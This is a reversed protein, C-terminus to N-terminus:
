RTERMYMVPNDGKFIGFSAKGTVNSLAGTLPDNVTFNVTGADNPASLNIDLLGGTITGGTGLSVTTTNGNNGIAITEAGVALTGNAALDTEYDINGLNVPTCNDAANTVFAGVVAAGPDIDMYYEARLQLSLPQDAPGYVDDASLRGSRVEGAMPIAITDRDKIVQPTLHDIVINSVGDADEFGLNLNIAPNTLPLVTNVARVYSLSDAGGLSDVGLTYNLPMDETVNALNATLSVNADLPPAAHTYNSPDISPLTLTGLTANTKALNSFSAAPDLKNFRGKYNQLITVGDPLVPNVTIQPAVAGVDTFGFGQGMYTFGNCNAAFTAAGPNTPTITFHDPVFRGITLPSSTIERETSTSGDSADASAYAADNNLTVTIWGVENYRVDDGQAVGATFVIDTTNVTDNFNFFPGNSEPQMWSASDAPHSVSTVASLASLEVTADITHSFSTVTGAPVQSDEATFQLKFPQGAKHIVPENFALNGTADSAMPMIGPTSDTPIEGVASGNGHGALLSYHDPRVTFPDSCAVSDDTTSSTFNWDTVRIRANQLAQNVTVNVSKDPNPTAAWIKGGSETPQDVTKFILGQPPVSSANFTPIVSHDFNYKFVVNSSNIATATTCGNGSSGDVLELGITHDLVSAFDIERTDMNGDGNSDKLAYIDVDFSENVKKTHIVGLVPDSFSPSGDTGGHQIDKHEATEVANFAGAKVPIPVGYIRADDISNSNAYGDARLPSLTASVSGVIDDNQKFYIISGVREVRLQSGSSCLKTTPSGPIVVGDVMLQYVPKRTGSCNYSGPWYIYIAYKPVNSSHSAPSLGFYKPSGGLYRFVVGGDDSIERMSEGGGWGSATLTNTPATANFLTNQDWMVSQQPFPFGYALNSDRSSIGSANEAKVNFYVAKYPSGGNLGIVTASTAASVGDNALQWTSQDYSYWIHYDIIPSGNIPPATWYLQVEGTNLGPQTKLDVIGPPAQTASVGYAQMGVISNYANNKYLDVFLPGTEGPVSTIVTDLRKFFITSGVREIRIEGLNSPGVPCLNLTQVVSGNVKIDYNYRVRGWGTYRSCGYQNTSKFVMAYKPENGASYGEPSLGFTPGSLNYTLRLSLGGDDNILKSSEAGGPGSSLTTTGSGTVSGNLYWWTVAEEPFPFGHAVNSEKMAQGIGNVANVKFYVAKFPETGVLGTVTASPSASVGDNALQWTSQDYSYYVDYDTITSDNNPPLTWYLQVEGVSLGPKTKLDVIGPPAQVDVGYLRVNNVNYMGSTKQVDVVLPGTEAAASYLVRDQHKYYVTSGVREIRFNGMNGGGSVPCFKSQGIVVGNAKFQYTYDRRGWGTYRSCGYRSSSLLVMSYKPETGAYGVPSLGFSSTTNVTYNIDFSFGGDDNIVKSSEAGGPGGALTTTNGGSVSGNLYWWVTSEEPFPFGHVINSDRSSPGVANVAKVKFYLATFPQSGNLGTVTASTLSSVGDNFRVWNTNDYSYDILYDTIPMDNSPPATWYLQVEGVSLGPKTKLDVIGPPAQVDVGYLRVNNVNYMGSTKQVDVVLPGTEAAASYLVRDQHKYYVTSGVREIRFNGMNGGGSVPCFKSQGIVVGNAKFQYTYDRRGWGTYRSCGYRSSSLLVMSYKPETGAYGVPSLGFSSTTNVTYNIDFSFGGDDNIVKSSEAGGPGGALTTTNGGSVSGNLYWWVTSEEPFPFGFAVKPTRTAAGIANVPIVKFYVAKFPETGVLGTVTVSPTANVGDNFLSWSSNDYSYYIQYDTIAPGNAPPATWYLQVEGPNLGPKTKLDLVAAPVQNPFGYYLINTIDSSSTKDIDIVLDGPAAATTWIDAGNRRFYITNGVREIKFQGYNYKSTTCFSTALEIVGNVVIDYYVRVRNAPSSPCQYNQSRNFKLAYKPTAGAYDPPSLGITSGSNSPSRGSKISFTIGGDEVFYAASEAQGTGTLTATNAGGLGGTQYWWIANRAKFPFGMEANSAFDTKGKANIPYVKFYLVRYPGPHPLGTLVQTSATTPAHVYIQDDAVFNDNSYHIEYDTIAAGNDPPATWSLQIQNYSTTSSAKLDIVGAPKQIGVGSITAPQPSTAGSHYFQLQLDETVGNIVTNGGGTSSIILQSGIRKMTYTYSQIETSFRCRFLGAFSNVKTGTEDYEVPYRGYVGAQGRKCRSQSGRSGNFWYKPINGTWGVPSVGFRMPEGTFIFEGDDYLIKSSKYVTPSSPNKKYWWTVAESVFPFGDVTNSVASQGNVNIAYVRFWVAKYPSANSLGTVTATTASSVGDNFITDDAVFGDLSYHIEYDTIAAGNDNPATWDLTVQGAGDTTLLDTIAEPPLLSVVAINSDPADGYGNVAIVKFWNVGGAVLGTISAAGDLANGDSDAVLTGATAFGDTSHYIKYSAIATGNDAPATWVLDYKSNIADYSGSLDTIGDPVFPVTAINSDNAAGNINVAMVKFSVYAGPTIGSLLAANDLGNGDSDAILTGATAFGDTSYYIQYSTIPKGNDNPATWNLTFNGAAYSGSLDTIPAPPIIQFHSLITAADLATDHVALEDILGSYPHGGTYLNGVVAYSTDDMDACSVAASSVNVGDIYLIATTGDYTIATHHWQDDAYTSPSTLSAFRTNGGECDLWGRFSGTTDYALAHSYSSGDNSIELIRPNGSGGGPSKFWGEMTIQNTFALATTLSALKDDVGDFSLANGSIGQTWVPQDAKNNIFNDIHVRNTVVTTRRAYTLMRVITPDTNDAVLNQLTAWSSGNWYYAYQRTGVRRLRLKGNILPNSITSGVINTGTGKRGVARIIKNSGSTYYELFQFGGSSLSVVFRFPISYTSTNAPTGDPFSYDVIVDYDGVMYAPNVQQVFAYNWTQAGSSAGSTNISQAFLEIQGTGTTSISSSGGTDSISGPLGGSSANTDGVYVTGSWGSPFGADFNQSGMSIDNAGASDGVLSGTGEDMKWQSVTAAHGAISFAVIGTLILSRIFCKNSYSHQRTM